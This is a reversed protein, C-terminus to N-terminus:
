KIVSSNDFMSDPLISMKKGRIECEAEGTSTYNWRGENFLLAVSLPSDGKLSVGDVEIETGQLM